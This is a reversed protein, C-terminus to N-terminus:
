AFLDDPAREFIKVEDIQYPFPRFTTGTGEGGIIVSANSTFVSGAGAASAVPQGNVYLVLVGTTANYTMAVHSWQGVPLAGGVASLYTTGGGATELNLAVIQRIAPGTMDLAFGYSDLFTAQAWGPPSSAIRGHASPANIRAGVAWVFGDVDNAM